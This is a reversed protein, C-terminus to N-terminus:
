AVLDLRKNNAARKQESILREVADPSDQEMLQSEPRSASSDFFGNRFKQNQNRFDQLFQRAFQGENDDKQKDLQNALDQSIDVKIESVELNHSALTAKLEGMGKEVMKKVQSNETLMEVNVKGGEVSVKLQVEGLGEPNMVVKVEGGGNKIAAQTSKILENVNKAEDSKSLDSVSSAMTFKPVQVSKNSNGQLEQSESILGEMSRRGLGGESDTESSFESMSAAGIPQSIGYATMATTNMPSATSSMSSGSVSNNLNNMTLNLQGLLNDLTQKSGPQNLNNLATSSAEISKVNLGPEVEFGLNSTLAGNEPRLASSASLESPAKVALKTTFFSKQLDTISNDLDKKAVEQKSLVELSLQRDSSKLYDAMSESSSQKLMNHFMGRAQQQDKASLTLQSLVANVTEEPAKTLEAESLKSFGVVMDIPSIGFQNKMKSMFSQIAVRRSLPDVAQSSQHGMSDIRESLTSIADKDSLKDLSKKYEGSSPYTSTKKNQSKKELKKDEEHRAERSVKEDYTKKNREAEQHSKLKHDSRQPESNNSSSRKSTSQYRNSKNDQARDLKSSFPSKNKANPAFSKAASNESQKLQAPKISNTGLVNM